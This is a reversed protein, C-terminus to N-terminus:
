APEGLLAVVEAPAVADDLVVGAARPAIQRIRATLLEFSDQADVVATHQLPLVPLLSRILDERSVLGAATIKRTRDLNEEIWSIERAVHSPALTSCLFVCYVNWAKEGATRLRAAYHKLFATEMASWEALLAEPTDFSCGFGTLVEDEFCVVSRGGVSFPYTAFGADRLIVQMTTLVDIMIQVGCAGRRIVAM